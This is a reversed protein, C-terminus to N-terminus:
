IQIRILKFKFQIHKFRKLFPFAKRKGREKEAWGAWRKKKKKEREVAAWVGQRGLRKGKGPGDGHAPGNRTERREGRVALSPGGTLGTKMRRGRRAVARPGAGLEAVARPGGDLSPGYASFRRHGRRVRVLGTEGRRRAPSPDSGSVQPRVGRRGAMVRVDLGVEDARYITAAEAGGHGM